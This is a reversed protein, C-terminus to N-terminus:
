RENIGAMLHSNPVTILGKNLQTNNDLYDGFHKAICTTARLKPSYRKIKARGGLIEWMDVWKEPREDDCGFILARIDPTDGLRQMEFIKVYSVAAEADDALLHVWWSWTDDAAQATTPSGFTLTVWWDWDWQKLWEGYAKQQQNVNIRRGEIIKM